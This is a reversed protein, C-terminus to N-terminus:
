REWLKTLNEEREVKIQKGRKEGEEEIYTTREIEWGSECREIQGCYEFKENAREEKERKRRIM